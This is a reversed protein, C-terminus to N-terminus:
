AVRSSQKHKKATKAQTALAAQVAETLLIKMRDVAVGTSQPNRHITVPLAGLAPLGFLSAASVLGEPLRLGTRATIGLGALLAAWLGDLSPSSAAIRYPTTATELHEIACRRFACQPGLAALPLPNNQPLAFTSAAIWVIEFAKGAEQLRTKSIGRASSRGPSPIQNASDLAATFGPLIPGFYYVPFRLSSAWM